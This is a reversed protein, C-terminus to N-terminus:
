PLTRRLAQRLGRVEVQLTSIPAATPAPASGRRMGVTVEVRQRSGCDQADPVLAPCSPAQTADPAIPSTIDSAIRPNQAATAVGSIASPFTSLAFSAPWARPRNLRPSSPTTSNPVVPSPVENLTASRMAVTSASSLAPTGAVRIPSPPPKGAKVSLM